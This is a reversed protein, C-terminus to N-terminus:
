GAQSKLANRRFLMIILYAILGLDLVNTITDSVSGITIGYILGPASSTFVFWMYAHLAASAFYIMTALALRYRWVLLTAIVYGSLYISWGIFVGPSVESAYTLFEVGPEMLGARVALAIMLWGLSYVIRIAALIMVVRISMSTALGAQKSMDVPAKRRFGIM